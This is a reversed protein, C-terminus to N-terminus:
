RMVAWSSAFASSELEAIGREVRHPFTAVAGSSPSVLGVYDGPRLGPAKLSSKIALRGVDM